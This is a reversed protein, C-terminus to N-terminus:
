RPLHILKNRLIAIPYLLRWMSRSCAQAPREAPMYEVPKEGDWRRMGKHAIFEHWHTVSIRVADEPISEHIVPTFFGKPLGKPDFVAYIEM